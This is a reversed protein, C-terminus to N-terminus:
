ARVARGRWAVPRGSVRHVLSCLFFWVFAALPVPWLLGALVGFRGVRRLLVLHQVALLAYAIPGAVVAVLAGTVWLAVLATRWAPISGAGAALNKTWGQALRRLGEPYMRARLASGDDLHAVVPIGREHVAAALALDEAV